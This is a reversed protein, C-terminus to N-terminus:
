AGQADISVDGIAEDRNPDPALTRLLIKRTTLRSVSWECGVAAGAIVIRPM